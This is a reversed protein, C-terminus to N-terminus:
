SEASKTRFEYTMSQRGKEGAELLRNSCDTPPCQFGFDLVERVQRTRWALQRQSGHPASVERYRANKRTNTESFNSPSREKGWISQGARRPAAAFSMNREELYRAIAAQANEVSDYDSNHIVARAMGSFVSEIVNLFQAQAPLRLIEIQPAH